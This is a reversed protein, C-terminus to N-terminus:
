HLTHYVFRWAPVGKVLANRDYTKLAIILNVFNADTQRAIMECASEM